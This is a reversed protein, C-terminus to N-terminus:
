RGETVYFVFEVKEHDDTRAIYLEGESLLIHFVAQYLERMSFKDDRGWTIVHSKHLTIQKKEQEKLLTIADAIEDWPILHPLCIRYKNFDELARIIKERDPMRMVGIRLIARPAPTM